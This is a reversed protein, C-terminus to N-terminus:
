YGERLADVFQLLGTRRIRRVREAKLIAKVEGICRELDDNVVVYDYEAWHSIEESAKSMRRAVVEDSDQARTKLRTELSKTSPPLIFISVLDDGAKQALQQTGQWDIDFLIDKGESLADEVPKSPTGYYNDFVKAHELLQGKNVLLNFDVPEMFFYDKGDVEGPRPKRTTASVSMSLRDDNELLARSITSKGAGSPSSLVLM